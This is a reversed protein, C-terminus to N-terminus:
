TARSGARYLREREIYREVAPPLLFRISRENRVRDRIDTASIDLASVSLFLVRNGKRNVLVGQRAAYRFHGRVAVPLLALRDPASKSQRAGALPRSLVGIDVADFLAGHEKWTHIEAFADLGMLLTLEWRPHSAALQRLTDITFSPGARDIEVTSVRFPPHDRVARRLMALRHRAPTISRGRKHPPDAAPILLVRQLGLAERAEEVCRLHGFHVPDFTGGFIGVRLEAPTSKERSLRGV